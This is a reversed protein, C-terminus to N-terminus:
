CMDLSHTVRVQKLSDSGSILQVFDLKHTVRVQIFSNSGSVLIHLGDLSHTVKWHKLPDSGSVLMSSCVKLCHTVERTNSPILVVSLFPHVYM